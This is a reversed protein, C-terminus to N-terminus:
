TLVDVIEDTAHSSRISKRIIPLSYPNRSADLSPLPGIVIGYRLLAGAYRNRWGPCAEVAEVTTSLICTCMTLPINNNVATSETRTDINARRLSDSDTQDRAFKIKMILEPLYNVSPWAPNM